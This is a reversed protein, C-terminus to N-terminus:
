ELCVCAWVDEDPRALVLGAPTAQPCVSEGIPLGSM